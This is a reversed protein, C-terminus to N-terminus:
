RDCISASQVLKDFAAPHWVPPDPNSTQPTWNALLSRFGRDAELRSVVAGCAFSALM